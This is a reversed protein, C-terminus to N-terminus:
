KRQRNKDPIYINTFNTNLTVINTRLMGMNRRLIVTNTLLIVTNRAYRLKYRINRHQGKKM